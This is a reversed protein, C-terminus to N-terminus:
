RIIPHRLSKSLDHLEETRRLEMNLNLRLKINRLLFNLLLTVQIECALRRLPRLPRRGDERGGTRRGAWGM